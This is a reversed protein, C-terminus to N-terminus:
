APSERQASTAAAERLVRQLEEANVPKTLHAQFGAELTRRRDSARGYGTMAAVYVPETSLERLRTLASFGDGEPMNLDLLVVHPRFTEALGVAQQAGYAGRAEHGLLTLVCVMTDASDRNDDVVLVRQPPVDGRAADRPAHGADGAATQLRLPLRISFTSGQDRGPSYASLMGGHQEVLTRALSLGIGLGGEGTASVSDEQAFLDFIRELSDPAIGRGTDSVTTVVYGDEMRVAVRIEGDDPTYRVANQLLNHLCQALRVADGNLRIPAQPLELVLRQNRERVVPRMAEVTAVVLDIYDLPEFKLLIKGTLVRGLDLLDDVLRTLHGVQRDIVDRARVLSAPFRPQMQMINLANRVPALPNRLEHALMALFENMRRSSHELERLRRQDTLDRTVKAYGRLVGHRDFVPTIVANAWFVSGDKRVRWGAAENRGEGLAAALERGPMGSAVDDDTFFMSFDRNLVDEGTYGLIAHAGANWTLVRGEPDLMFIAYDKVADVLLRLQEESQRMAEEHRRRQTLDRTVKAYGVLGGDEDHLATIVVSAWFRGGDKRVRWGEDEFRGLEAARRLEEQPWGRQVAEGPYFVEISRGIIEDAEYGKIRRVGANWSQIRGQPDLLLIVYDEISEVALRFLDGGDRPAHRLPQLQRGITRRRDM